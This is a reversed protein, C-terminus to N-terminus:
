TPIMYRIYEPALCWTHLKKINKIVTKVRVTPKHQAQNISYIRNHRMQAISFAGKWRHKEMGHRTSGFHALGLGLVSTALSCYVVRAANGLVPLCSTLCCTVSLLCYAVTYFAPPAATLCNSHQMQWLSNWDLFWRTWHLGNNNLQIPLVVPSTITISNIATFTLNYITHIYALPIFESYAILRSTLQRVHCVGLV